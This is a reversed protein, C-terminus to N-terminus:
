GRSTLWGAVYGPVPPAAGASPAGDSVPEGPVLRLPVQGAWYALGSDEPEEIPGGTRVKASAETIPVRVVLSKRLEPASPARSDLSRGPAMHDVIALLARRKEDPDTVAAGRGFLMVSRYNMSHHFASRALVLGDVITVTICAEAGAALARLGFNAGAGHLFVEDAIRAYATPFVWPRGDLAFGVHCILGADLIASVTERDYRGRDAQRRVRTRETTELPQQEV